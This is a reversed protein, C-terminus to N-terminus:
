ASKALLTNPFSYILSKSVEYRTGGVNVKIPDAMINFKILLLDTM